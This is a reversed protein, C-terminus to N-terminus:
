FEDLSGNEQIMLVKKEVQDICENCHKLVQMGQEYLRFSEELSIDSEELKGVTEQVLRFADELKMDKLQNEFSDEAM